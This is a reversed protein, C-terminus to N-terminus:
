AQGTSNGEDDDDRNMALRCHIYTVRLALGPPLNDIQVEQIAAETEDFREMHLLCWALLVQILASRILLQVGHDYM